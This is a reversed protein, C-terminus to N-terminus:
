RPSRISVVVDNQFIIRTRRTDTGGEDTADGGIVPNYGEGAGSPAGTTPVEKTYSWIDQVGSQAKRTSRSDPDGLAMWVMAKKFGVEM